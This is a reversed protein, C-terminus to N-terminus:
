TKKKKPKCIIVAATVAAVALAAAGIALWGLPMSFWKGTKGTDTPINETGNATRVIREARELDKSLVQKAQENALSSIAKRLKQFTKEDGTTKAAVIAKKVATAEKETMGGLPLIIEDIRGNMYDLVAAVSASPDLFLPMADNRYVTQKALPAVQDALYAKAEFYCEGYAGYTNNERAQRELEKAGLIDMQAGLGTVVMCREGGLEVAQRIEDGYGDGYAMPHLIDIM